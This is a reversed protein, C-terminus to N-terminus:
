EEWCLTGLEEVYYDLWSDADERMIEEADEITCENGEMIETIGRLGYMGTYGEYIEFAQHYAYDLAEDETDFELEDVEKAGGFGGGLGAFIRYTPM